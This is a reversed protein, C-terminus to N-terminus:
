SRRYGRTGSPTAGKRRAGFLRTGIIRRHEIDFQNAFARIEHALPQRRAPCPILGVDVLHELAVLQSALQQALDFRELGLALPHGLLDAREHALLLGGLGLRLLLLGAVQAVPDRFQVLLRRIRLRGAVLQHQPQRIQRV